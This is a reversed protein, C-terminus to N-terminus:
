QRAKLKNLEAWLTRNDDELNKIRKELEEIKKSSKLDITEVKGEETDIHTITHTQHDNNDQKGNVWTQINKIPDEGNYYAAGIYALPAVFILFILFRAFPTLKRKAM